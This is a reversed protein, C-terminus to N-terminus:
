GTPYPFGRDELAAGIRRMNEPADTTAEIFSAGTVDGNARADANVVTRGEVTTFPLGLAHYNVDIMAAVTRLLPYSGGAHVPSWRYGASRREIYADQGPQAHGAIAEAVHEITCETMMSDTLWRRRADDM